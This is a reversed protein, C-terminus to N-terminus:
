RNNHNRVNETLGTRRLLRQQCKEPVGERNNTGKHNVVIYNLSAVVVATM